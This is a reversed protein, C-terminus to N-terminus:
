TFQSKTVPPMAIAILKAIKEYAKRTTMGRMAELICVINTFVTIFNTAGTVVEM